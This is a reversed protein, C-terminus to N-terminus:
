REFFKKFGNRKGKPKENKLSDGTQNEYFWDFVKEAYKAEYNKIKNDEDVEGISFNAYSINRERQNLTGWIVPYEEKIYDEVNSYIDDVLDWKSVLLLLPTSTHNNQDLLDIFGRFVSLQDSKSLKAPKPDLIYTFCLNEKPLSEIYAKIIEPLEENHDHNAKSLDEGSMDIFCFEFNSKKSDNTLLHANIHRPVPNENQVVPSGKPFKKDLLNTNLENWLRSGEKEHKKSTGNLNKLTDGHETSRNIQLYYLISSILVTKGTSSPGFIYLYSRGSSYEVEIEIKDLSPPEDYINNHDDKIKNDFNDEEIGEFTSPIDDIYEDVYEFDDKDIGIDTNDNGTENNETFESESTEDKDTQKPRPGKRPRGKKKGNDM